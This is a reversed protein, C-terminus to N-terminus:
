LESRMRIAEAKADEFTAIPENLTILYNKDDVVVHYYTSVIILRGDPLTVTDHIGEHYLEDKDVGACGLELLAHAPTHHRRTMASVVYRGDVEALACGYSERRIIAHGANGFTAMWEGDIIRGDADRREVFKMKAM